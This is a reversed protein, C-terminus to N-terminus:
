VSANCNPGTMVLDKSEKEVVIRIDHPISFQMVKCQKRGTALQTLDHAV